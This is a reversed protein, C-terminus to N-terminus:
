LEKYINKRHGIRMVLILLKDEKIELIARLKGIRFSFYPCGVLRKIHPYPRIRIRELSYVVREQTDKELRELEELAIESYELEYTM